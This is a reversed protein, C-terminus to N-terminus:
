FDPDAVHGEERGVNSSGTVSNVIDSLGQEIEQFPKPVIGPMVLNLTTFNGKLDETVSCFTAVCAVQDHKKLLRILDSLFAKQDDIM